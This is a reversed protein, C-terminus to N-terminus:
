RLSDEFQELSSIVYQNSCLQYLIPDKAAWYDGQIQTILVRAKRVLSPFIKAIKLLVYSLTGEHLCFDSHKWDSKDKKYIESLSEIEWEHLLYFATFKCSDHLVKLQLQESTEVELFSDHNLKEGIFDSFINILSVLNSIHFSFHNHMRERANLLEFQKQGFASNIQSTEVLRFSISDQKSLNNFQRRVEEKVPVFLIKHSSLDAILLFVPVPLNLWYSATSTKISPSRATRTQDKDTTWDVTSVGKLQVLVMNGTVEDQNNAIEIYADIGYDRETVERIIWAKPAVNQLIRWSEAEIQHTEPRKPFKM